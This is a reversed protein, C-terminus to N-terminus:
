RTDKTNKGDRAVDGGEGRRVWLAWIVTGVFNGEGSQFTMDM